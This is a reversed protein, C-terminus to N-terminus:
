PPDAPNSDLTKRAESTGGSVNVVDVITVLEIITQIEAVSGVAVLEAGTDPVTSRPLLIRIRAGHTAQRKLRLKRRLQRRISLALKNRLRPCPAAKSIIEEAQGRRTM